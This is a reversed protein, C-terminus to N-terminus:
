NIQGHHNPDITKRGVNNPRIILGSTKASGIHLEEPSEHSQLSALETSQTFVMTKAEETHCGSNHEESQVTYALVILEM